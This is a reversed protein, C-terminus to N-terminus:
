AFLEKADCQCCVYMGMNVRRSVFAIDGRRRPSIGSSVTLLVTMGLMQPHALTGEKRIASGDRVNSCLM